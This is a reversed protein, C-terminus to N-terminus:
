QHAQVVIFSFGDLLCIERVMGDVYVCMLCGFWLVFFSFLLVSMFARLPGSLFFWSVGM